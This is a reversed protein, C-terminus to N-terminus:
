LLVVVAQKLTTQNGKSGTQGTEQKLQKAAKPVQRDQLVAVAQKLTM